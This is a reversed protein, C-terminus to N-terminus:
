WKCDNHNAKLNYRQWLFCLMDAISIRAQKTTIQKWITDKDYSVCSRQEFCKRHRHQSKSESQIKTMPFVVRQKKTRQCQLNHNAKLNYRQWLFCLLNLLQFSLCCNHNAKLNYRQWLFCLMSRLSTLITGTTIQKWITDKDYSVCSKM